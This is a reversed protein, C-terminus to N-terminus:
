AVRTSMSDTRLKSALYRPLLKPTRTWYLGYLKKGVTRRNTIDDIVDRLEVVDFENGSTVIKLTMSKLSQSWRYRESM